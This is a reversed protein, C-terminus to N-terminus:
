PNEYQISDFVLIECYVSLSHQYVLLAVAEYEDGGSVDVQCVGNVNCYLDLAAYVSLSDVDFMYPISVAIHRYPTRVLVALAPGGLFVQYGAKNVIILLSASPGPQRSIGRSPVCVSLCGARTDCGPDTSAM